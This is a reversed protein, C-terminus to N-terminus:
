LTISTTPHMYPHILSLRIHIHIYTRKSKLIGLHEEFFCALNSELDVKEALNQWYERRHFKSVVIFTHITWRKRQTRTHAKFHRLM